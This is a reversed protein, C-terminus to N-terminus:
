RGGINIKCKVAPGGMGVPIQQKKGCMGGSSWAMDDSIMTITKLMDFAVGSITTNRIARKIKGKKIEYGLVVGFMFESTSDAQGNSSKILYYGDDISAIMEELKSTGPVIATNRMRVLPEDYFGFARANGTPSMKLKMATEKNHMFNKLIGNEIIVVDEGTTGEDDVYLPVPCTKGHATHAYDILTVMESAVKQNLYDGAVSGGLVLDGETTHGIAEHSLIGALDADLIVDKYGAEAHVGESKKMLHEYQEAIKPFLDKPSTFLDEFQGLGGYVDYLSIPEGNVVVTMDIYFIVRPIMSYSHSGTSTIILKEMDLGSMTVARSDLNPYTKNIHDDITKLFEILEKRSLKQKKTSFDIDYNGTTFPLDNMMLNEKSSLFTANGSASKIVRKIEEDSVNPNSALGWNGESYVRASVGSKASKTNGWIDGEVISIGDSRNEQVRLETYGKFLNTFQTLDKRIM